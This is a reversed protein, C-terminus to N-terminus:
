KVLVDTVFFILNLQISVQVRVNNSSHGHVGIIPVRPHDFRVDSLVSLDSIDSVISLTDSHDSDCSFVLASSANSMVDADSKESISSSKSRSKTTTPKSARFSCFAAATRKGAGKEVVIDQPKYPIKQRSELEALNCIGNKVAADSHQSSGGRGSM